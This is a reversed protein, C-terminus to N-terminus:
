IRELALQTNLEVERRKTQEETGETVIDWDLGSWARVVWKAQFLLAEFRTVKSSDLTKGDIRTIIM